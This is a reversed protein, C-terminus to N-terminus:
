EPLNGRRVTEFYRGDIEGGGNKVVAYFDEKGPQPLSACFRFAAGDEGSTHYLWQGEGQRSYLVLQNKELYASAKACELHEARFFTYGAAQLRLSQEKTVLPITALFTSQHSQCVSMFRDSRVREQITVGNVEYEYALLHGYKRVLDGCTQETREIRVPSPSQDHIVVTRVAAKVQQPERAWEQVGPSTITIIATIVVAVSFSGILIVFFLYKNM